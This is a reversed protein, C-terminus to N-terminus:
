GRRSPSSRSRYAPTEGGPRHRPPPAASFTPTCSPRMTRGARGARDGPGGGHRQDGRSQVAVCRVNMGPAPLRRRERRTGPRRLDCIARDDRTIAHHRDATAPLRRRPHRRQPRADADPRRDPTSCRGGWSSSRAAWTRRGTRPGAAAHRAGLHWRGARGPDDFPSIPGRTLIEGRGALRSCPPRRGFARLM